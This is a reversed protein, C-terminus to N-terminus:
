GLTRRASASARAVFREEGEYNKEIVSSGQFQERVFDDAEQQTKFRKQQWRLAEIKKRGKFTIAGPKFVNAGAIRYTDIIYSDPQPPPKVPHQTAVTTTTTTTTMRSAPFSVLFGFHFLGSPSRRILSSPQLPPNKRKRFRREPKLIGFVQIRGHIHSNNKVQDDKM